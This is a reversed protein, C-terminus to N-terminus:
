LKSRYISVSAHFLCWPLPHRHPPWGSTAKMTFLAVLSFHCAWYLFFIALFAGWCRHCLWEDPMWRHNFTESGSVSLDPHDQTQRLVFNDTSCLTGDGNELRVKCSLRLVLLSRLRDLSSWEGHDADSWARTHVANGFSANLLGGLTDGKTPPLNWFSPNCSFSVGSLGLKLSVQETM